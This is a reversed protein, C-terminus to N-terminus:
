VVCVVFIGGPLSDLTDGGGFAEELSVLEKALLGIEKKTMDGFDKAAFKERLEKLYSIRSKITRFNTLLGGPWHASVYPLGAAKAVEEIIPGAQRKTGVLLFNSGEKALGAVFDTAEKLKEHTKVLDIIYIGDRADFIFPRMKPNWRFTQHGFHLGAELMQEVALNVM